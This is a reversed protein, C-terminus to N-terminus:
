MRPPAPLPMVDAGRDCGLRETMTGRDRGLPETMVGADRGLFADETMTGREIGDGRMIVDRLTDHATQVANTQGINRDLASLTSMAMDEFRQNLREFEGLYHAQMADMDDRFGRQMAADREMLTALLRGDDTGKPGLGTPENGGVGNPVVITIPPPPTAASPGPTQTVFYGGGGAGSLVNRNVTRVNVITSKKTPPTTKKKKGQSKKRRPMRRYLLVRFYHAFYSM